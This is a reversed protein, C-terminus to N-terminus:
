RKKRHVSTKLGFFHRFSRFHTYKRCSQLGRADARPPEGNVAQGGRSGRGHREGEGLFVREDM